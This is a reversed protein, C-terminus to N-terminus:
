RIVKIAKAYLIQLESSNRHFAKVFHSQSEATRRFGQRAPFDLGGPRGQRNEKQHKPQSLAFRWAILPPEM